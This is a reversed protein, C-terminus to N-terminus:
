VHTARTPNRPSPCPTARSDFKPNQPVKRATAYSNRTPILVHPPGMWKQFSENDLRRKGRIGAPGATTCTRGVAASGNVRVSGNVGFRRDSPWGVGVGECADLKVVGVSM